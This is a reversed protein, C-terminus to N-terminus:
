RPPMCATLILLRHILGEAELAIREYRRSACYRVADSRAGPKWRHVGSHQTANFASDWDRAPAYGAFTSALLTNPIRLVLSEGPASAEWRSPTGSALIDIDGHLVTARRIQGDRRCIVRNPASVHLLVLNHPQAPIDTLGASCKYVHGTLMETSAPPAERSARPADSVHAM